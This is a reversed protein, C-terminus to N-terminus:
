GVVTNGDKEREAVGKVGPATSNEGFDVVVCTGWGWPIGAASGCTGDDM